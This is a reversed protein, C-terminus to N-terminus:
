GNSYSGGDSRTLNQKSRLYDGQMMGGLEQHSMVKVKQQQLMKSLSASVTQSNCGTFPM